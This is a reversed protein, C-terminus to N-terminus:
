YGTQPERLACKKVNCNKFALEQNELKLSTIQLQLNNIADRDGSKEMYLQDIKKDRMEIKRERNEAIQKWEVASERMNAIAVSEATYESETAQASEKRNRSRYFILGGGLGVVVSVISTVIFEVM